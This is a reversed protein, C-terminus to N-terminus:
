RKHATWAAWPASVLALRAGAEDMASVTAELPVDDVALRRPPMSAFIPPEHLRAAPHEIWGDVIPLPDALSV